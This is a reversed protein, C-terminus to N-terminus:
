IMIMTAKIKEATPSPLKCGKVAFFHPVPATGLAPKMKDKQIIDIKKTTCKPDKFTM